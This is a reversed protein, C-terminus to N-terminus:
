TEGWDLEHSWIGCIFNAVGFDSQKYFVKIALTSKPLHWFFCSPAWPFLSWRHCRRSLSRCPPVKWGLWLFICSTCWPSTKCGWFVMSPKGLSLAPPQFGNDGYQWTGERLHQFTFTGPHILQRYRRKAMKYESAKQRRIISTTRM